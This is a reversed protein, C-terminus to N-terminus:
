VIHIHILVPILEAKIGKGNMVLNTKMRIHGFTEGHNIAFYHFSRESGEYKQLLSQGYRTFESHVKKILNM